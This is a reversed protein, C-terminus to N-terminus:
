RKLIGVTELPKVKKTIVIPSDDFEWTPSYSRLERREALNTPNRGVTRKVPIDSLDDMAMASTARPNTWSYMGKDQNFLRSSQLDNEVTRYLVPADQRGRFQFNFLDADIVARDSFNKTMYAIEDSFDLLEEDFTPSELRGRITRQLIHDDPIIGRRPKQGRINQVLARQKERLKQLRIRADTQKAIQGLKERADTIKQRQKQIIKMRADGVTAQPQSRANKTLM